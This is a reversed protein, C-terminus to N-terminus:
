PAPLKLRINFTFFVDVPKGQALAPKYKRKQLAEIVATNMFPLGKVIRCGRVQGDVTVICRIQMNGEVGRDLAERTYEPAPGSVMTPATMSDNFELAEAAEATRTGVIAVRVHLKRSRVTMAEATFALYGDHKVTLSYAGPPLFTMEFAGSADTIASQEGPLATSRATVEADAVPKQTAADIVVGAVSGTQAFASTSLAVGFALVAGRM